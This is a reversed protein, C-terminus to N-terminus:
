QGGNQLIGSAQIKNILITEGEPTDFFQGVLSPDLINIIKPQVVTPASQQNSMGNRLNNRQAAQQQPTLVDVREDPRKAFQVLQTDTSGPGTPTFSGGGALQPVPPQPGFSGGDAMGPFIFGLARLFLQKLILKAIDSFIQNFFERMNFKGTNAFEVIADAARDAGSVVIDGLAAGMQATSKTASLIAAQFSGTFTESAELAAIKTERLKSNYQDLSLSGQEYLQNLAEQTLRLTEMPGNIDELVQGQIESIALLETASNVLQKETDSLGRKISSEISFINNLKEKELGYMKALEIQKGLDALEQAFTKRSGSGAGGQGSNDVDNIQSDTIVGQSFALDEGRATANRRARDVIGSTLSDIVSGIGQGAGGVFDRSFGDAFAASAEEGTASLAGTVEGKFRELNISAVWKDGLGSFPNELGVAEAAGGIFDLLGAFAQIIGKIGAEVANVLGNLAITGIDKFVPGLNNWVAVIAKFGGFFAGIIGNVINKSTTFIFTIASVAVDRIDTFIPGVFDVVPQFASSIFGAASQIKEVIIQLAAVALDKLTIFNSGLVKIKDGFTIIGITAVTIVTLIAGIPNAAIAVTLARVAGAALRAGGALAPYTAALRAAVTAQAAQAATTRGIARTLNAEAVANANTAIALRTRAAAATIFRGTQADRSRGNATLAVTDALTAATNRAQAAASVLARGARRQELLITAGIVKGARQLATIYTNIQQIARVGWVAGLALAAASAVRGISGLNESIIIIANALKASAGTADDFDDIFELINTKAVNFAQEITPNTEDFLASVKGQSAQIARFVIDATLKGETGLKRLTGRTVDGFQKTTNLYDVIIDAVAPLQELVSRLEDGSLRDSALGQGLQILAANAERASAGSLIAAKQLTETVDLIQRQGVGLNRASLAIRNYVDATAQFDSRANRASQFLQKQVAELQATSTTTLRLRNEVNTLADAYRTLATLAGAGGVVFLARKLLFIGRTARDASHGIEDIRRKVVRGGSELFRVQVTETVM